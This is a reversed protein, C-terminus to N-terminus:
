RENWPLITTYRTFYRKISTHKKNGQIGKNAERM